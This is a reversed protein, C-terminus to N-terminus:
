RVSLIRTHEPKLLRRSGDDALIEIGARLGSAVVVGRVEGEAVEAIIRRGQLADLALFRRELADPDRGALAVAEALADLLAVALRERPLPRGLLDCLGAPPAAAGEAPPEPPTRLTIGIGAIVCGAGGGPVEILVGAVKHGRVWVDNPWKVMAPAGTAARIAEAAAVGAAGALLPAGEAPPKRLVASLFVGSGPTSIWPAGRRGRGRTQGDAFVALGPGAGAAALRAAVDNTSTVVGLVRV